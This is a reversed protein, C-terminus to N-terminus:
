TGSPKVDSPVAPGDGPESPAPADTSPPSAAEHRQATREAERMMEAYEDRQTKAIETARAQALDAAKIGARTARMTLLMGAALTGVRLALVGLDATVAEFGTTAYDILLYFTEGAAAGGFAMATPRLRLARGTAYGIAPLVALLWLRWVIAGVIVVVLKPAGILKPQLRFNLEGTIIAGVVAAVVGLGAILMIRRLRVNAAQMATM